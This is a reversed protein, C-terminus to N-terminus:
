EDVSFEWACYWDEPHEDPPCAICRTKIRPDVTRAFVDYEVLGVPKCAFDALGKRRRAEQVRCANMRFVLRGPESFFAEQKNIFAYLRFQLARALAELGGGPKIDLFEMIRRAELASFRKWAQADLRIAEEMGYAEEVAQFWLGDHALWRKAFDALLLELKESSLATPVGGATLNEEAPEAEAAPPAIEASLAGQGASRLVEEAEARRGEPVFMKVTGVAGFSVGFLSAIQEGSIRVPIESGELVSRMVEASMPDTELIETWDKGDVPTGERVRTMATGGMKKAQSLLIEETLAPGLPFKLANGM